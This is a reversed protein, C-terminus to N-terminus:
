RGVTAEVAAVFAPPNFVHKGQDSVYATSLPLAAMEPGDLAPNVQWGPALVGSAYPISWSLGGSGGYQYGWEGEVYEEAQTRYDSTVSICGTETPYRSADAAWGNRCRTFDDPAEPDYDGHEIIGTM